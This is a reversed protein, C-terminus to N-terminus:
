RGTAPGDRGWVQTVGDEGKLLYGIAKGDATWQPSYGKFGEEFLPQSTQDKLTMIFTERHGGGPKENPSRPTIITYIMQSGDPSLQNSYVYKLSLLEEATLPNQAQASPNIFLIFGLLAVLYKM